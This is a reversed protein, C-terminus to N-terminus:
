KIKTLSKAKATVIIVILNRREVFAKQKLLFWDYFKKKEEELRTYNTDLSFIYEIVNHQVLNALGNYFVDKLSSLEKIFVDQLEGYQKSVGYANLTDITFHSELVFHTREYSDYWIEFDTINRPSNKSRLNYCAM